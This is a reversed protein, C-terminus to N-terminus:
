ILPQPEDFSLTDDAYSLYISEEFFPLVGSDIATGSATTPIERSNDVMYSYLPTGGESTYVTIV